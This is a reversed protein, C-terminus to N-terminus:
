HRPLRRCRGPLSGPWSGPRALPFFAWFSPTQGSVQGCRRALETARRAYARSQAVTTPIHVGLWFRAESAQSTFCRVPDSRNTGRPDWSVINFRGGGSANLDSGSDRVLDVGSEGPGGPNVFMSGILHKQDSALRRIVALQIQKGAPRHWNLPVSVRACQLQKGFKKDCSWWAIGGQKVATAAAAGPGAAGAPSALPLAAAVM